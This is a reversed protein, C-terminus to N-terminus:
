NSPDAGFRDVREPPPPKSMAAARSMNIGCLRNRTRLAFHAGDGVSNPANSSICFTVTCDTPGLYSLAKDTAILDSTYSLM